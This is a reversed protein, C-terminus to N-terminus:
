TAWDWGPIRHFPWAPDLPSEAVRTRPRALSKGRKELGRGRPIPDRPAAAGRGRPRPPGFGVSSGGPTPPISLGADTSIESRFSRNPRRPGNTPPNKPSQRYPTLPNQQRSPVPPIATPRSCRGVSSPPSCPARPDYPTEIAIRARRSASSVDNRTQVYFIVDRRSNIALILGKLPIQATPFVRSRIELRRVPSKGPPGRPKRAPPPHLLLRRTRRRRGFLGAKAVPFRKGRDHHWSPAGARGHRIVPIPRVALFCVEDIKAPLLEPVSLTPAM